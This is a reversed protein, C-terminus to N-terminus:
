REPEMETRLRELAKHKTSRVTQANVGLLSAVEQVSRDEDILLRLVLRQRGTLVRMAPHDSADGTPAPPDTAAIDVGDLSAAPAKQRRLFDITVNRAVVTLWTVISAREPDFRRLARYDDKVLRVFVEQVCDHIDDTGPSGSPGSLTRRVGAHVVGAYREVFQDWAEKRGELCGTLDVDM